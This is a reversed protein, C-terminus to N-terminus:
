GSKKSLIESFIKMTVEQQCYENVADKYQLIPEWVRSDEEFPRRKELSQLHVKDLEFVETINSRSGNMVRHHM